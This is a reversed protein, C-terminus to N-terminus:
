VIFLSIASSTPAPDTRAALMMFDAIPANSIYLKAGNIRWGGAVKEAKTTLARINSGVNPESLGFCAIKEGKLAPRFYRQKQEATGIRWIPWIGLHSHASWSTAFAQSAYSLEERVICDSIKDLGSGGDEVPYRVGILGLDGWKRFMDRPFREASDTAYAIPAIETTAFRRVMDRVQCQETSFEFNM